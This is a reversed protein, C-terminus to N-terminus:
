LPAHSERNRKVLYARITEADEESLETAFAIMGADKLVGDLVIVKFPESATITASYRLDPLIGGSVAVDGHCVSCYRQYLNKGRTAMEKTIRVDPISPLDPEQFHDEPLVSNAGLKFALLRSINHQKGSKHAVEGALLPLAGGWGVALMIYQEGDLAYSIAPAVVGTQVPFSWLRAGTDARYAVFEGGATGQFVLNGATSLVGGNWPGPQEVRWREKQTVPDWALLRGKMSDMIKKKIANDQPMGAAGLDVGLNVAIGSPTRNGDASYLFPVEQAPLYVLGTVPSFSMPQWNHAGLPGPNAHWPKGGFRYRAGPIEVPRGSDMDVHSAWNVPVFPEASLLEGTVRDLVYFFGNKPAQMLVKRQKGAIDLEALIMHQTATFDWNDGPTTQYHWVYTGDDPRLAVISSLFWNDGGNPSRINRDWPSGNGVGIYLLDLEPDYAMSDWVTGGGGFKWWGGTWTEAAKELIPNEFPKAPDGPVTYFRWVLGGTDADYASVYGRVGFEAGGNGILVRGKVIRPAGTISYRREPDITLVEWEVEGTRANLSVLRGDITGAYVKGQWVAVGRNVVDCCARAGWEGPVKPDFKWILEGSRADIAFVKSWATSVYIVGDVALPTAEQGRHTDFDFYWDMGLTSVNDSNIQNLPSFRQESYTRGHTLWNHPENDARTIRGADIDAVKEAEVPPVSIEPNKNQAVPAEGGQCAAFFVLFLCLFNRNNFIM